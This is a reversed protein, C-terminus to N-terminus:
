VRKGCGCYEYNGIRYNNSHTFPISSHDIYGVAYVYCDDYMGRDNDDKGWEFNYHIGYEDYYYAVVSHNIDEDNFAADKEAFHVIVPEGKDLKSKILNDFMEINSSKVHQRTVISVERRIFPVIMGPMIEDLLYQYYEMGISTRFPDNDLEFNRHMTMTEMLYCQFDNMCNENIYQRVNSVNETEWFHVKACPSDKLASSTTSFVRKGEFNDPIFYDNYFTDFYELYQIFSVYGCSNGVNHPSYTDLNQFYTKMSFGTALTFPIYKGKVMSQYSSPSLDKVVCSGTQSLPLVFLSLLILEKGEM